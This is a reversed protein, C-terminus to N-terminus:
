PENRLIDDDHEVRHQHSDIFGAVGGVLAGGIGSYYIRSLFYTMTLTLSCFSTQADSIEDCTLLRFIVPSAFLAGLGAGIITGRAIRKLFFM